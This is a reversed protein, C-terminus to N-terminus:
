HTIKFTCKNYRELSLPKQVTNTFTFSLSM